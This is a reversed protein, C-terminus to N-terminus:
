KELGLEKRVKAPAQERGCFGKAEIRLDCLTARKACVDACVKEQPEAHDYYNGKHHGTWYTEVVDDFSLAWQTVMKELADSRTRNDCLPLDSYRVDAIAAHYREPTCGAAKLGVFCAAWGHPMVRPTATEVKRGAIFNAHYDAFILSAKRSYAAAVIDRAPILVFLTRDAKRGIPCCWCQYQAGEHAIYHTIHLKANDDIVRAKALTTADLRSGATGASLQTLTKFEM